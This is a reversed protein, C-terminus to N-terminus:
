ADIVVAPSPATMPSAEIVPQWTMVAPTASMLIVQAARGGHLLEDLFADLGERPEILGIGRREYERSLEPSVMGAGAWPGWDISVVRGALRQGMWWALKDLSDNAAAYDIQGKNGFAGSVSGFFAVFGVDPRLKEALTLASEVKTEFVRDFSERTKQSLLRDELIGAGHIVGDIRGHHAYIADILAGFAAADRVDLAHYRATAGVAAIEALTSRLARAAVLRACLAEVAAPTTALGKALIAKRLAPLERAAALDADEEGEPLPSRGVLELHCGFRKALAIGASATIGRAGGTILVVSQPGLRLEAEDAGSRVRDAGVPALAKRVGAVHAVELEADRTRLEDVLQEALRAPPENPDLGVARASLGPLERVVTKILGAIGARPHEGEAGFPAGLTSAALVVGLGAEGARKLRDFLARVAQSGERADRAAFAGLDILGDARDLPEGPALLRATAGRAVLLAALAEAVGRRDPVIAWSRGAIEAIPRAPADVTALTYRRLGLPARVAPWTPEAVSEAPQNLAIAGAAPRGGPNAELWGLIGRLTKQTALKEIMKDRGDGSGPAWGMAQGLTGLIEIRKISDISLDAELNLDLDLMEVPYGTREGVIDLLADKLSPPPADPAPTPAAGPRSAPEAEIRPVRSPPPVSVPGAGRQSRPPVSGRASAPPISASGRRSTPAAPLAPLSQPVELVTLPPASGLFGLMVQRQAEVVERTSRLFELVAAEREGPPPMAVATTVLPETVPRLAGRPIEGTAPRALHGNVLWLASSRPATPLTDLDLARAERGAFLAATDLNIGAAAIEALAFLLREIGPEGSQDCSVVLHPRGALIKATLGALVRGPGVEVFTRAGAAYMAEIEETFRVPLALQDALMRRIEGGDAPYTSATANSYVPVSPAGLPVGALRQAFLGPARAVLPSHFACAVPILRASIGESELAALAEHIGASPGSIVTQDPANHNAIVVQPLGEIVPAIASPAATVAAMAGPDAGTSSLICEARTESLALLDGEDIVGAFCLAAVEGYSHGAVMDPRLGLSRLLSGLALSAIGLAPQAVRTDTLAANQAARLEPTPAMPPFIRGIWRSGLTLFRQLSPLAVFLDALMGTRQSGQGSFLFALKGPERAGPVFIGRPEPTFTRARRLKDRLDGLSTAVIALQLPGDGRRRRESVSRALDALTFAGAGRQSAELADDDLLRELRDIRALVAHRDAARFLFLEAPWRELGSVPPDAGEYAALVAHFNAGGFGFASVSARRSEAPWPRAHDSFNFPSTAPDWAPNPKRVLLTPPLVRHHLALTAKILGALGAACKTHGIQSKVSGLAASGPASGAKIYVDTLTGLETRDGVVTGTGHAEVLGVEAPSVGSARYARELARIQGEKRPATLGLSRGDSSGAIGKLVAYVRDGDREADALRKLVVCAVGEGLVIGDAAADFTRCAGTPSLAHVSSFLLYDNISNHLDAGGCLVLDASRCTLEKIALDVAALSSACAADVTYNSGGLDLRNAIRGAIVNALVGPFSDETLTPLHEDLAPPIPGAYQPYLARFGYASSLDTGAEAGFIVATRERDFPREGYGADDLARRAVELALLQVPEIASLSRPPIGYALPDFSITPLFGGWRSASKEGAPAEPDYYIAPDWREKPVETISSRGSTINAWYAHRDPADPFICAIGIIAVDAPKPAEGGGAKQEAQAALEATAGSCVEWHLDAITSISSRLAAVQGIMFMGERRQTEEDVRVLAPGERRVGKAALRLRGLNKQELAAWVEEPTKGQEELSRKEDLFDRVYDNDTCRTAHGPATELLVTSECGIAAEQFAPLIAGSSVAEETFLYATGMLVGIHAGRACLPAAMAAVMAASRADHVGGAFLVSVGALAAQPKDGGRADAFALLREIQLEWLVFSTRPGVHGGCERGEFVFRRAGDNLFLDLLGPSPVHLYTITGQAELPRAQSPRGGAIIAARPVIERVVAIQEERLDEPVFGLIGVGWARDGLLAQTEQLLTRVEEGRMLALALFPLGGGRSVADAFAARDSVRTMPGQAIPYRIGHDQALPSEAALPSLARADRLHDDMAARVAHVVGSATRHREALPRAFAADQGLPLLDHELDQGGLQALFGELEQEGPARRRAVPLDPRTYLRHGGLLLTESGDMGRIAAKVAEPLSSERVLALQSDLVVGTAGGAIAAAATHLGIGGQAWLPVETSAAIHQLLVFTTEAGVRGGSENGKVILGDAGADAAALAEDLSTVQVLVARPRFRELPAGAPLVVVEVGAPLDAATWRTREPIRVGFGGPAERAVLALAKRAAVPDRGLDLVGLAGARCLSLIL